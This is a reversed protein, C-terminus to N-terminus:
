YIWKRLYNQLQQNNTINIGLYYFGSADLKQNLYRQATRLQTLYNGLSFIVFGMDSGNRLNTIRNYLLRQQLSTLTLNNGTSGKYASTWPLTIPSSNKNQAHFNSTVRLQNYYFAILKRTLPQTRKFLYEMKKYNRDLVAEFYVDPVSKKDLEELTNTEIVTITNTATKSDYNTSDIPTFTLSLTNLGPALVTGEIPNYIFTGSINSTANLQKFSLPTLFQINNLPNWELTYNSSKFVNITNTTTVVDYNLTDTPTFTTSLVQGNGANLLTGIPPTYVFTGPVNATANLQTTSLVTGYTIDSITGWTISPTIGTVNILVNANSNNYNANSSTFTTSLIQNNGKALVTGIAPTYSFTGAISSSANLQISSLATGYVINAPNSWNITPNAKSVNITVTGNANNLNSLDTPTFITSLVQGNGANLITGSVPTYVFTGPVSNGGFTVSANLQTSSLATGYVINAPTSWTLSPTGKSVNISVSANGGNINSSDTPTFTTSLVQGNGAGILSGSAPTYVFTGPVSNGNFTATANLQTSSLTTGYTINAPTTWSLTSNGKSVNISVNANVINLNSSDTPTFTTSLTQANGAGILSGSAPTYVFTGPASNGGFTATANLQTGSLTTGYTINAPNSWSISPTGKSVNITVNANANNLNSSDTPTFTTSLTQGNGASLRTGSVPNYVFTGPASNGGFTATANLQTGSLATNYTINAPNSWSITPTGKLVNITVNANANNFNKDTTTFATSLTQSNGASLITGSSPTYVLTGTTNVTANLQTASLATNYTINSPNSWTIQTMGVFNNNNLTWTNGSANSQLVFSSPVSTAPTYGSFTTQFASGNTLNYTGTPTAIKNINVEIYQFAATTDPNVRFFRIEFEVNQAGGETQDARVVLRMYKVSAPDTGFSVSTESTTSYYVSVVERDSNGLLIGPGTTANWTVDGKGTGFGLVSNTNWFMQNLAGSGTKGYNTGFFNFTSDFEFFGFGNLVGGGPTFDVQTLGDINMNASRNGSVLLSM